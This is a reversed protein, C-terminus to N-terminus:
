EQFSGDVNERVFGLARKISVNFGVDGCVLYVRTGIKSFGV